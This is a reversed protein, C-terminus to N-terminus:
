EYGHVTAEPFASRMAAIRQDIKGSPKRMKRTLARTTEELIRDSWRPQFMGTEAMTLLLSTLNYPVLICADLVVIESM